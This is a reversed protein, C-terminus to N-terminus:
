FRKTATGQTPLVWCAVATQKAGISVWACLLTIITSKTLSAKRHAKHCEHATNLECVPPFALANPTYFAM